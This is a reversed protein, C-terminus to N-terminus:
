KQRHNGNACAKRIRDVLANGLLPKEVIPIDARDALRSLAGSPHTTMLIAPAKVNLNRLRAILELGSMDPMRQDVVLCNCISFAQANLLENGSAYVRVAFGEVELSFKLSNRVALDDDVVIVM